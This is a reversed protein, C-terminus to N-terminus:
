IFDHGQVRAEKDTTIMKDAYLSPAKGADALFSSSTLVVALSVMAFLLKAKM